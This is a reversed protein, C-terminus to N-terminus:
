SILIQLQGSSNKRHSQVVLCISFNGGRDCDSVCSAYQSTILYRCPSVTPQMIQSGSDPGGVM